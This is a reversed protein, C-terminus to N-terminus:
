GHHCLSWCPSFRRHPRHLRKSKWALDLRHPFSGLYSWFSHHSFRVSHCFLRSSDSLNATLNCDLPCSKRKKLYKGFGRMGRKFKNRRSHLMHRVYDDLAEVDEKSWGDLTVGHPLVAYHDDEIHSTLSNSRNLENPFMLNPDPTRSDGREIIREEQERTKSPVPPPGPTPPMAKHTTQRSMGRALQPRPTEPETAESVRTPNRSLEYTPM